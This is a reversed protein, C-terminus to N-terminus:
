PKGEDVARRQFDLDGRIRPIASIMVEMNAQGINGCHRRDMYQYRRINLRGTYSKANANPSNQAVGRM